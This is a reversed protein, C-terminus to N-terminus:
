YRKIIKYLIEFKTPKKYRKNRKEFEIFTLCRGCRLCIELNEKSLFIHKYPYDGRCDGGEGVKNQYEM